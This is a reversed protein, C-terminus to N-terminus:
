EEIGVFETKAGLIKIKVGDNKDKKYLLDNECVPAGRLCQRLIFFSSLHGSVRRV